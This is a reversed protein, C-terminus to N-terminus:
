TFDYKLPNAVLFELLGILSTQKSKLYFGDKKVVGEREREREMRDGHLGPNLIHMTMKEKEAGKSLNWVQLINVCKRLLDFRLSPYITWHHFCEENKPLVQVWDGSGVDHRYDLRLETGPFSLNEESRQFSWLICVTCLWTHLAFVWCM